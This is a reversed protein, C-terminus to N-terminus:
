GQAERLIIKNLEGECKRLAAATDEVRRGLEMMADRNEMLTQMHLSYTGLNTGFETKIQYLLTELTNRYDKRYNEGMKEVIELLADKIKTQVQEKKVLKLKFIWLITETYTGADFIEGMDQVQRVLEVRPAPIALFYQKAADSIEGNERIASKVKEMFDDREEELITQRTKLFEDTYERIVQNCRERIKECDEKKFPVGGLWVKKLVKDVYSEVNGIITEYLTTPDLKLKKLAEVPLTANAPIVKNDYVAEITGNITERLADINRQIMTLNDKNSEKLSNAKNSLTRLVRNVSDIIAFAKVASAYKEGYQVIERELAYIGSCIELVSIDDGDEEAEKRKKECRECMEDTALKSTAYRNQRYCFGKFPSKMISLGENFDSEEEETAVNNRMAKAAYAYLASTFFLKKESLQISFDLNGNEDKCLIEANQLKERDRFKISDSWNIVFLSRGLDICNKDNKSEAEKLYRMLAINGAGEMKNPAGVFILISQTQESLAEMLVAQHAEYDSDTGPTDYITFQVSENDLPIPFRVEIEHSIADMSNLKALLACIQDHQQASQDIEKQIEAMTHNKAPGVTVEFAKKADIWTLVTRVNKIDFIIETNEGEKPGRIMFMKATESKINEPLIRYGLLANILASKGASFVGTFCLSVNNDRLSENKERIDKAADDIQAAFNEACKQVGQNEIGQIDFLKRRHKKLEGIAQGGFKVVEKFTEKMDPLEALLTTTIECKAEPDRNYYEVMQLWDEYDTKTTIVRMDLSKMGDFACAIDDFFQKGHDQLVFQGRRDMYRKLKGGAIPIEKGNQFRRFEVEKKAPHYKMQLYTKSM